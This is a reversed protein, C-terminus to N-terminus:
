LSSFISFLKTTSALVINVDLVNVNNLEFAIACDKMSFEAKFHAWVKILSEFRLIIKCHKKLLLLIVDLAHDVESKVGNNVHVM